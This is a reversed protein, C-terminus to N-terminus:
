GFLGSRAAFRPDCVGQSSSSVNEPCIGMGHVDGRRIFIRNGGSIGDVLANAPVPRNNELCDMLSSNPRSAAKIPVSNM